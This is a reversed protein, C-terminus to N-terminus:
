GSFPLQVAYFAYFASRPPFVMGTQWGVLRNKPNKTIQPQNEATPTRSFQGFKLAPSELRAEWGRLREDQV